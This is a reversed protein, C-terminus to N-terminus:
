LFNFYFIQSFFRRSERSRRSIKEGASSASKRPFCEIVFLCDACDALDAPFRKERPHRQNACFANLLLYVIQSFFRRLRHSRRSFKEGASSASKRLFCEIVFLCDALDAPFKKERPYRQNVCFANLLFYVIQSIQSIQPFNKRGRIVSIQAFPM